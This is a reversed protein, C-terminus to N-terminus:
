GSSGLWEIVLRKRRLVEQATALLTMIIHRAANRKWVM